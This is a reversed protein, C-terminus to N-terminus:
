FVYAKLVILQQFIIEDMFSKIILMGLDLKKNLEEDLKRKELVNMVKIKLKDKNIEFKINIEENEIMANMCAESISVKIDEINDITMGMSNAISSATLRAVSIYEAKNPIVLKISDKM